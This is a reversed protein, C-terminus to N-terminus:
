KRDPLMENNESPTLYRRAGPDRPPRARGRRDSRPGGHGYVGSWRGVLGLVGVVAWMSGTLLLAMDFVVLGLALALGPLLGLGSLDMLSENREDRVPEGKMVWLIPAVAAQSMRTWGHTTHPSSSLAALRWPMFRLSASVGQRMLM